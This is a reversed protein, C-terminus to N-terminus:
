WCLAKPELDLKWVEKNYLKWTVLESKKKSARLWSRVKHEKWSSVHIIDMLRNSPFAPNRPGCGSRQTAKNSRWQRWNRQMRFFAPRILWCCELTKYNKMERSFFILPRKSCENIVFSKKSVHPCPLCDQHVECQLKWCSALWIM